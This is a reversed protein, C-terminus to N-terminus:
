ERGTKAPRLNRLYEISRLLREQPFIELIIDVGITNFLELYGEINVKGAGLERHDSGDVVDHLHALKVHRVNEQFFKIIRERAAPAALETHGADWVLGLGKERALKGVVKLFPFPLAYTNEMCLSIRNTAYDLLRILSDEFLRVHLTPIRREMFIIENKSVSYFALRGPHIVFHTGGLDVALDIMEYYRELGALRIKTHRNMLPIDSPGHFCLAIDNRAYTDKVRGREAADIGEPFFGGTDMGIQVIGFGRDIAFRLLDDFGGRVAVSVFGLRGKTLKRREGM